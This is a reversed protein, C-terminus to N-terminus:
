WSVHVGLYRGAMKFFDKWTAFAILFYCLNAGIKVMIVNGANGSFELKREIMHAVVGIAAIGAFPIIFNM